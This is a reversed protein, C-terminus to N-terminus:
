DIRGAAILRIYDPALAMVFLQLLEGDWLLCLQKQGASQLEDL